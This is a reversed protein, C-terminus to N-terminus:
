ACKHTFVERAINQQRLPNTIFYASGDPTEIVAQFSSKSLSVGFGNTFTVMESYDSGDGQGFEETMAMTATTATTVTVMLTAMSQAGAGTKYGIKSSSPEKAMTTAAIAMESYDTIDGRGSEEVMATTVTTATTATATSISQAGAGTKYGIKSSSPEKATTTVVTAATAMESYDTIDGRRSEEVMAMTVTMALTATGTAMSQASAGTKYRIKSSSPEKATTTAVMAATAMESDNSCFGQGSEEATATTAMTTMMTTTVTATSMAMSVVRGDNTRDSSDRRGREESTTAMSTTSTEEGTKDDPEKGESVSCLNGEEEPLSVTVTTTTM